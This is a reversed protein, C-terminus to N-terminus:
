GVNTLGGLIEQVHAMHMEIHNVVTSIPSGTPSEMEVEHLLRHEEELLDYVFEFYDTLKNNLILLVRKAKNDINPTINEGRNDTPLGRSLAM